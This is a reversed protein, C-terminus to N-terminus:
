IIYLPNVRKIPVAWRNRDFAVRELGGDPISAPMGSRPAQAGRNASKDM